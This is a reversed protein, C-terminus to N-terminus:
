PLFTFFIRRAFDIALVRHTTLGGCAQCHFEGSLQEPDLPRIERSLARVTGCDNCYWLNVEEINPSSLFVVTGDNRVVRRLQTTKERM